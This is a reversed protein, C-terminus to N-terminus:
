ERPGAFRAPDVPKLRAVPRADAIGPNAAFERRGRAFVARAAAAGPAAPSTGVWRWHWPEWTVGQRNGPPFSQEFGFRVANRALWQGGPTGSMCPDLDNCGAPGDSGFDVAYGTAHESFGGPAVSRARDAPDRCEGVLGAGCFIAAQHAVGRYCSIARLRIGDAQAAFILRYLDTGADRHVSCSKGPAMAESMSVRTEELANAYPLHGYLRGDAAVATVPEAPMPAPVPAPVPLPPAQAAAAGPLAALLFSVRRMPAAGSAHHAARHCPPDTSLSRM